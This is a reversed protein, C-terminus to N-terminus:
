STLQSRYPVTISSKYQLIFLKVPSVHRTPLTDAQNLTKQSYTSLSPQSQPYFTYLTYYLINSPTPILPHIIHHINLSKKHKFPVLWFFPRFFHIILINQSNSVFILDPLSTFLPAGSPVTSFFSARLLANVCDKRAEANLETMRLFSLLGFFPMSVCVIRIRRLSISHYFHSFGSSPCQCWEVAGSSEPLSWLLFSLLGFFPM